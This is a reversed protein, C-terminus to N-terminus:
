CNRRRGNLTGELPSPEDTEMNGDLTSELLLPVDTEANDGLLPLAVDVEAGNDPTSELPTPVGKRRATTRRTKSRRRYDTNATNDPTSELPTPEDM